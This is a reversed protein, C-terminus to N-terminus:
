GDELDSRLFDGKPFRLVRLDQGSSRVIDRISYPFDNLNANLNRSFMYSEYMADDSM